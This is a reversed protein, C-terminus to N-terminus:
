EDDDGMSDDNPVIPSMDSEDDLGLEDSYEDYYSKNSKHTSQQKHVKHRKSQNHNIEEIEDEDLDGVLGKTSNVADKKGKKGSRGQKALEQERALREQEAKYVNREHIPNSVRGEPPLLIDKNETPDHLATMFDVKTYDLELNTSAYATRLIRNSAAIKFTVEGCLTCLAKGSKKDIIASGHQSIGIESSTHLKSGLLQIAPIQVKVGKSEDEVIVMIDNVSKIKGETLTKFGCINGRMVENIHSECYLTSILEEFERHAQDVADQRENAWMAIERVVSESLMPLGAKFAKINYHVVYDSIRRIPSTTHAYHQSQLGYHSILYEVDTLKALESEAEKIHQIIEGLAANRQGRSMAKLKGSVYHKNNSGKGKGISKESVFEVSKPDPSISYKAKSQMRVLFNNVAKEKPTGKVMEIIQKTGQPSLDGDFPLDLYGFFEFAQEIKNENPEDHVRYIIPINNELAFKASAENATVMFMEIVKHYACNDAPKRDVVTKYDSAFVTEYENNTNFELRNRREFGHEILDAAYKNMVVQEDLTLEQGSLIKEYLYEKTFQPNKDVISQAEEYAYKHHSNIVANMFDSKIPLGTNKDIVTKVVFAMRDEHENLSCIGTSLEPPLISFVGNPPYMSFGGKIYLEFLLTGPKVYRTVDAVATYIVTNGNEDVTSYIADDMDKCTAPDTTTFRIHRLDVIKEGTTGVSLVKGDETTLTFESVDVKTPIHELEKRIAEDSFSMIAGHNLAIANIEDITNGADGLIDRLSGMPAEGKVTPALELTCIKNEYKRITAKDNLIFVEGKLAKPDDPLFILNDFSTKIVRGKIINPNTSRTPVLGSTPEEHDKSVGAVFPLARGDLSVRGVYVKQGSKAGNVYNPNVEYQRSDGDFTVYSKNGSRHYTGIKLDEKPPYINNKDRVLRGSELLSKLAIDFKNGSDVIKDRVFKARVSTLDVSGHQVYLEVINRYVRERTSTQKQNKKKRKDGM